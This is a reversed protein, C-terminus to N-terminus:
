IWVYYNYKWFTVGFDTQGECHCWEFLHWLYAGQDSAAWVWLECESNMIASWFLSLSHSVSEFVDILHQCTFVDILHQCNLLLTGQECLVLLNVLLFSAVVCNRDPVAHATGKCTCTCNRQMYMNNTKQSQLQLQLQLQAPTQNPCFHVFIFLSHDYDLLYSVIM